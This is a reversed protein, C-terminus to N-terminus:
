DDEDQEDGKKKRQKKDAAEKMMAFPGSQSTLSTKSSQSKLKQSANHASPFKRKSSDTTIDVINCMMSATEFIGFGMGGIVTGEASNSRDNKEVAKDTTKVLNLSSSSPKQHEKKISKTRKVPEASSTREKLSLQKAKEELSDFNLDKKSKKSDEARKHESFM